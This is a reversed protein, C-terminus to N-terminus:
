LNEGPTKLAARLTNLLNDMYTIVAEPDKGYEQEWKQRMLDLSGCVRRGYMLEFLRFGLYEQPVDLYAYLLPQPKIGLDNLNKTVYSKIMQGLTGNFEGVLGNTESHYPTSTLYKISCAKCLRQMLRSMFNIGLDSVIETPFGLRCCINVLVNVLTSAEINSLPVAESYRTTHYIM